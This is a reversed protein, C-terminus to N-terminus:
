AIRQVMGLERLSGLLGIYVSIKRRKLLSNPFFRVIFPRVQFKETPQVKANLAPVSVSSRSFPRLSVVCYSVIM